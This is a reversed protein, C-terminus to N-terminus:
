DARDSPDYTIWGDIGAEIRGSLGFEDFFTVTGTLPETGLDVSEFRGTGTVEDAHLEIPATGDVVPGTFVLTYDIRIADHKTVTWTVTGANSGACSEGSIEFRGLHSAYGVGSIGHLPTVDDCMGIPEFYAVEALHFPRAREADALGVSAASVLLGVSAIVIILARWRRSRM